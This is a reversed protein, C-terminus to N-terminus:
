PRASLHLCGTPELWTLSKPSNRCYVAVEICFSSTRSISCLYRYPLPFRAMGYQHASAVKPSGVKLLGCPTPWFTWMIYHSSNMGHGALARSRPTSRSQGQTNQPLSTSAQYSPEGARQRDLPLSLQWCQHKRYPVTLILVHVSSM